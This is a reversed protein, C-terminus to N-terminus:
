WGVPQDAGEAGHLYPGLDRRAEGALLDTVVVIGAERLMAIGRGQNKPHPDIMAVFVVGVRRAILAKACSPTRQHFACPELTVFVAADSLDGELQDLAM